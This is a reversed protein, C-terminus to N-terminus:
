AGIHSLIHSAIAEPGVGQLNPNLSTDITRLGSHSGPLFWGPDSSDTPNQYADEDISTRSQIQDLVSTSRNTLPGVM